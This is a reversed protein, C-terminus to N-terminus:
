ENNGVGENGISGDSIDDLKIIKYGRTELLELYTDDCNTIKGEFKFGNNLFIKANQGISNKLRARLIESTM